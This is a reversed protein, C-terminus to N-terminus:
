PIVIEKENWLTVKDIILNEEKADNSPPYLYLEDKNTFYEIDKFYETTFDIPTGQIIHTEGDSILILQNGM